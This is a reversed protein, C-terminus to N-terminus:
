NLTAWWTPLQYGYIPTKAPHRIRAWHAVWQADVHFLPVVYHGSILVRDLARVAAVFDDQTEAKLIAGIMADIAPSRAGAYNFSGQQDRSASGWRGIQENGPSLSAAYSALVM